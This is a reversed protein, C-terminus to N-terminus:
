REQESGPVDDTGHMSADPRTQGGPGTGNQGSGNAPEAVRLDKLAAWM